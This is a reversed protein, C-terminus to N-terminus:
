GLGYVTVRSGPTFYSGVGDFMEIRNIPISSGYYSSGVIQVRETSDNNADAVTAAFCSHWTAATYNPILIMGASYSSSQGGPIDGWHLTPQASAGSSSAGSGWVGLLYWFKYSSAIGNFRAYIPVTRAAYTGRVAHVILLHKATQPVTWDVWGNAAFTYDFLERMGRGWGTAGDIGSLKTLIDGAVGGFPMGAGPPGPPGAGVRSISFAQFSLPRTSGANHWAYVAVRDGAECVHDASVSARPYNNGTIRGSAQYAVLWEGTTPTAGAKRAIGFNISTDNNWQADREGLNCEFHYNGRKNITVSGDANRTFDDNVGDARTIVFNPPAPIPCLTWLGNACDTSKSANPVSMPIQCYIDSWNQRIGEPEAKIGYLTVRSGVAFNGNGPLLTLRNIAATPQWISFGDQKYLTGTGVGTAFGSQYTVSQGVSADRYDPIDMILPTTWGALSAAMVEYPIGGVTQYNEIGVSTGGYARHRENLYNGPTSDNNFRVYSSVWPTADTCRLNAVLKLHAFTQPINQFDFTPAAAGLVVDGILQMSGSPPGQPGVIALDQWGDTTKVKVGKPTSM